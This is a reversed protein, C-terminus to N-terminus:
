RSAERAALYTTFRDDFESKRRVWLEGDEGRYVVAVEYDTLGDKCQVQCQGVVAYERNSLMHRHTPQWELAASLTAVRAELTEVLGIQEKAFADLATCTTDLRENEAELTEIHDLLTRINDPSCRAIHAANRKHKAKSRFSNDFGGWQVIPNRRERCQIEDITTMGARLPAHYHHWPGPTTGKLGAALKAILEVAETM